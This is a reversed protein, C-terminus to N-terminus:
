AAPRTDPIARLSRGEPPPAIDLALVSNAVAEVRREDQRAGLNERFDEFRGWSRAILGLATDVARAEDAIHVIRQAGIAAGWLEDVDDGRRGGPRRLFWVDWRECLKRWISIADLPAELQLALVDRAEAKTLVPHFPADGFIVLFPRERGEPPLAPLEVRENVYHAFLQYSEPADGGGGEGYLAKLREELAFGQAFETVQLPYRDCYADGIAAFSVELSPRYQSLTQYLLPLRDFIEFPWHAMSGTVDVAVILPTEGAARIPRRPDTLAADPRARRAYSRGGAARASAAAEERAAKRAEDFRYAGPRAWDETSDGWSYM